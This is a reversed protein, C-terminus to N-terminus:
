DKKSAAAIKEELERCCCQWKLPDDSIVTAGTGHKPCKIKQIAEIMAKTVEAKFNPNPRFEFGMDLLSARNSPSAFAFIRYFETISSPRLRTTAIMAPIM